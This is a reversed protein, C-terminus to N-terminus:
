EGDSSQDILKTPRATTATQACQDPARESAFLRFFFHKNWFSRNVFFEVPLKRGERDLKRCCFINTILAGVNVERCQRVVASILGQELLGRETCVLKKNQKIQKEVEKRCENRQKGGEGVNNDM